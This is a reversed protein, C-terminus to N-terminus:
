PSTYRALLPILAQANPSGWGTVPDWGPSAQYGTITEHPFTVTNNGTTIDHFAQHYSTSRGIRYIAPNVFGLPHGVYQDALAILAAWLPAAASTGSASFFVSKGTSESAALTMGTAPDADAAVDPVGRDAGIAPVGDQYDPRPFLDSFGGGSAEPIGGSPAAPSSVAQGSPGAASPVPSVPPGAPSPVASGPTAVPGASPTNWATESVYAGTTRDATLSTGGAALVLPEAAYLGVEKVPRDAGSCALTAAGLDGTPSVVTVHHDQAAQLASTLGAVEASTYCQEDAQGDISVVAGQSVALRLVADTAAIATAPSSQRPILIVRIAADPAVAHVIETDEVEEGSALWPSASGALSTDVQLRAAPLGFVADFLALDQRIDTIPVSGQPEPQKLTKAFEQLVVTQGRGDIGRDLVPQIGYAVRFQQPAYCTAATLQQCDHEAAASTVPSASRGAPSGGAGSSCGGALVLTGAAAIAAAAARLRRTRCVVRRLYALAHCVPRSVGGALRGPAVWGPLGHERSTALQAEYGAPFRCASLPWRAEAKLYRLSPRGHLWRRAGSM